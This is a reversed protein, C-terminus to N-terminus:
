TKQKYMYYGCTALLLAIVLMGAIAGIGDIGNSEFWTKILLNIQNGTFFIMGGALLLFLIGATTKKNKALLNPMKTMVSKAMKKVRKINGM